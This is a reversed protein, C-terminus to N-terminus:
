GESPQTEQMVALLKAVQARTVFGMPSLTGDSMGSIIGLSVMRRLGDAAWPAVADADPFAALPDPEEAPEEAPAEEPLEELVPEEAPLEEPAPEAETVPQPLTRSLIVMAEQRTVPATPNCYLGSETQSGTLFGLAYATTVSELAWPAIDQADAFPLEAAVPEGGLYRILSVVFEQRTMNDDPRFHPIGDLPSGNLVGADYMTRVYDRAWHTETDPFPNDPLVTLTLTQETEGARCSIVGTAPVYVTAATFLGTEDVTGIASDCTWIFSTDQTYVPDAAYTASATLALTDRSLLTEPLKGGDEPSLAITEPSELVRITVSGSATESEMTIVADGPTQATFVDSDLVGGEATYTINEPVPATLYTEDTATVTLPVQGGPLAMANHPYAFLHAAAGPEAKPRTLFLFNACKRLVGEDPTNVTHTGTMGPYLARIATSGGGDLNLATVCGLEQMRLALEKLTLGASGNAKDVTYFVLSGDEKLGVATRPNPWRATSLAFSEQAVGDRVLLEMGACASDVDLWAEDISVSLSLTDGPALPKLLTELTAAYDSEAAMSLLFGGEPIKCDATDAVVETVTCTLTAGLLLDPADPQLVVNYAPITNKTHSDYDRTYLVMGNSRTLTKNVHIEMPAERGPFQATVSLSPVGIIASGDARFGVAELNGSSRVAGGTIVCGYPIGNSMDFFSGNVGAVVSFGWSDPYAEMVDMASKGYLTSGYVVQPLLDSGATYTVVAEKRVTGADDRYTSQTLSSHTSLPLTDQRLATGLSSAFATVSLSLSLTLAALRRFIHKM